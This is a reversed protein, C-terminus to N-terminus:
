FYQRNDKVPYEKATIARGTMNMEPLEDKYKLYLTEFSEVYLRKAKERLGESQIVSNLAQELALGLNCNLAIFDM